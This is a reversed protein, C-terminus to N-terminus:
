AKLLRSSWARHSESFVSPWQNRAPHYPKQPVRCHAKLRASALLRESKEPARERLPARAVRARAVRARAPLPPKERQVRERHAEEPRARERRQREREPASGRRAKAHRARERHARAHHAREDRVREAAQSEAEALAAPQDRKVARRVVVHNKEPQLWSRLESLSIQGDVGAGPKYCSGRVFDRVNGRM